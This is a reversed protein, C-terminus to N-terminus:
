FLVSRVNRPEQSVNPRKQKLSCLYFPWRIMKAVLGPYLEILLTLKNLNAAMLKLGIETRVAQIGRVTARTYGMNAKLHGFVPEVELKRTAYIIATDEETLKRQVFAKQSEWHPNIAIRRQSGAPTKTLKDRVPDFDPLAEYGIFHRTVGTKHDTRDFESCRAFQVGNEDTYRDLIGDYRWNLRKTQDQRYKKTQEKEYMTYPILPTAHRVQRIYDYNPESGYGADASYYKFNLDVQELLPVLTRQDTPRQNIDYYLVFQNQTAIQLNYGPKLQGNKMPDEKMRMFTADHDTKSYSNRDPGMITKDRQYRAKRPCLDNRLLHTYHKLRRRLQKNASGGKITGETKIVQTLRKTETELQSIASTMQDLLDDTEKIELPLGLQIIEDIAERAKQDLIPEYREINARWVFSYKNADAVIKTGDIFLTENDILNAHQLLSRFQAYLVKVLDGTTKATRFRNITRVSPVVDPDGILWKMPLNELAMEHIQDGSAAGRVYAFLLMKLMLRPHFARPGLKSRSPLYQDPLADVFFSIVRVIHHEPVKFEFQFPLVTQNNNYQKYM